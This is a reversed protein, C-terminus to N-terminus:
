CDWTARIMALDIQDFVAQPLVIRILGSLDREKASKLISMLILELLRSPPLGIASLGSGVLPINIPRGNGELRVKNWLGDLAQLLSAPTGNAKCDVGTTALAFLFFDDAGHHIVVTSGISYRTSNGAVRTLSGSVEAPLQTTVADDFIQTHGGLISQLFQGHVSQLAVPKGLESDFFESVAIAKNGEQEFLDGFVVAVQTNTNKIPIDVEAKPYVLIAGIVLSILVYAILFQWNYGTTKIDLIAFLPELVAWLIAYGSGVSIM